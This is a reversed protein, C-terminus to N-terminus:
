FEIMIGLSPLLTGQGTNELKRLIYRQEALPASPNEIVVNGDVDENIYRDPSQSKFSYANQVDFYLMLSWKEFYYQKDVRFDLQHFAKLRGSNFRSYDLYPRGTIDYAIRQSSRELDLPTYPAGGVFRWKIGIDWNRPLPRTATFNFIIKNDWASPIYNGRIDQFESRVLTLSAIFNTKWLNNHRALFEVGYARGKGTPVVEEAGFVDFDASKSSIAVSDAVSFPYNGYIKYFGELSIRSEENPKNEIGFVVHDAFIYKLENEKNVLSGTNNRFGMTTYAPRQFYRGTNFNLSWEPTLNFSASFRPSLQKLPNSMDASYSNGDVRLGASLLLRTNLVTKSAQGFASYSVFNLDTNYRLDVPQNNLFIKNYTGNTYENFESGAGYLFKRDGSSTVNEYRIKTEIENSVYDFTLNEASEVNERYKQSVNNLHNRSLVLTHYGNKAFHKYVTGFTYNWQDNTPLYKLIYRQEETENADLNLVNTDYAGLGIFTIENKDDIRIRNKFQMDNYTPLFPFGLTAFLLQLYSRRVSFVFSNKDALPGDITLALDSAGVTTRYKLRDKNGDVQRFDLVSSLANGRNAPFAGAFFDLERVFDVNIIGVPGGSAGQTAFHNINPIEVGDLFFRNENAGGGRVIIDNRFAPTSAVGPFSQLVKSIDRNGGPNKEIEKLGISRMSVPSEERKRFPSARVVFEELQLTTPKFEVEIYPTNANTILVDASIATEYGIASVAVKVFGPKLGFFIFNGDIDTISGTNTGYIIVNAFAVPENNQPNYVRGRLSGGSREQASLFGMTLLFVMLIGLKNMFISPQHKIHNKIRMYNM